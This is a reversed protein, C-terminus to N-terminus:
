IGKPRRLTAKAMLQWGTPNLKVLEVLKVATRLSPKYIREANETIFNLIEQSQEATMGYEPSELMKRTTMMYKIWLSVARTTHLAMDLYHGRSLLAEIHPTVRNKGAELFAYFDINTVFVISGKFEFETPVEAETEEESMEEPDVTVNMNRVRYSLIRQPITDLAAKLLNLSDDDYFVNDIDDLMLVDSEHRYTYLLRYLEATSMYGSIKKFRMGQRTDEDDRDENNLGAITELIKVLTYTKGIGASGSVILARIKREAIGKSYERLANFQGIVENIVETDSRKDAFTVGLGNATQELGPMQKGQSDTASQKRPRGRKKPNLPDSPM